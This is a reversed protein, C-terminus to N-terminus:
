KKGRIKGSWSSLRTRNAPYAGAHYNRFFASIVHDAKRRGEKNPVTLPADISILANNKGVIEKIKNIIEEDSGALQHHILHAKKRDGKLIALGTSNKNSWALDIGVFFM